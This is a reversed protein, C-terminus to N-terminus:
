VNLNTCEVNLLGNASGTCCAVQNSCANQLPVLAILVNIPSCQGGLVNNLLGASNGSRCCSLVQHNGCQANADGVTPGSHPTPRPYRKTSTTERKTSTSERKTTTWERKTSTPEKTATSTKTSLPKSTWTWTRTTTTEHKTSTPERKTTTPERKTSTPEKTATSTKTSLPAQYDNAREKYDNAREDCNVDQYFLTAQNFDMDMDMDENFIFNAREDYHVDQDFITTQKYGMDMDQYDNTRKTTPERKTTTTPERKTTTPEKKTSTTEKKTTTPERKTTSSKSETVPKSSSSPRTWTKVTTPKTTHQTSTHVSKTVTTTKAHHETKPVYVYVTGKCKQCEPHKTSISTTVCGEEAPMTHTAYPPSEHGPTEWEHWKKTTCANHCHGLDLYTTAFVEVTRAEIDGAIAQQALFPAILALKALSATLFGRHTPM